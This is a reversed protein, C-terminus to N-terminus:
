TGRSHIRNPSRKVDKGKEKRNGKVDKGKEERDHRLTVCM